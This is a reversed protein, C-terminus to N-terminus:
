KHHKPAQNGPSPVCAWVIEQGPKGESITFVQASFGVTVEDWGDAVTCFHDELYRDPLHVAAFGDDDLKVSGNGRAWDPDSSSSKSTLFTLFFLAGVTKLKTM